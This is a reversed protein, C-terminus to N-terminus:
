RWVFARRESEPSVATASGDENTREVYVFWEYRNEPGDIQGFLDLPVQWEPVTVQAGKYVVENNYRYVLRVAYQENEALDVPQWRLVITNGQIFNAEVAPEVLAPAGYKLGPTPTPEPISTAASEAVEPTETPPPTPTDTPSPTDTPPLEPTDTAAPTNTPPVPTDTAPLPTPTSTAPLTPTPLPSDLPSEFMVAEPTDVEGVTAQEPVGPLLGALGLSAVVQNGPESQLAVWSGGACVGCLVLVLLIAVPGTIRRARSPRGAVQGATPREPTEGAPKAPEVKKVPVPSAADGAKAQAAVPVNPRSVPRSPRSIPPPSTQRQTPGAPERPQRKEEGPVSEEPPRIPAVPRSPRLPVPPPKPASKPLPIDASLDEEPANPPPPPMPGVVRPRINVQENAEPATLPPRFGATKPGSGAGPPPAGMEPRSPLTVPRSPPPRSVREEQPTEAKPEPVSKEPRAQSMERDPPAGAPALREIEATDLQEADHGPFIFDGTSDPRIVLWSVLARHVELDLDVTKPEKGEAPTFSIQPNKGALHLHSLRLGAVEQPSLGLHWVLVQLTKKLVDDKNPQETM